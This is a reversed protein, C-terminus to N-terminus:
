CNWQYCHLFFPAHIEHRTLLSPSLSLLSIFYSRSFHQDLRKIILQIQQDLTLSPLLCQTQNLDEFLVNLPDENEEEPTRDFERPIRRWLGTSCDFQFRIRHCENRYLGDYGIFREQDEDNRKELLIALSFKGHEEGYKSLCEHDMDFVPVLSSVGFSEM